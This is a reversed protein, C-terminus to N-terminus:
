VMLVTAGYPALAQDATMLRLPETISQAVLIRDFPDSHHVPLLAVLAAHAGSVPLEVFGSADIAALLESPNAEIKGLRAKIAVEWISASSVYVCAASQLTRRAAPKLLPSAAVAWLFIPTDLLLRM